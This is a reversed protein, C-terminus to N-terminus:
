NIIDREPPCRRAVLLQEFKNLPIPKSFLYGQTRYCGIDKLLQLQNYTEIGEAVVNIGLNNALQVIAKTIEISETSSDIDKVFSQDIKITDLKFRKLYFLSSYGTGFDDLAMSIGLKKLDEIMKISHIENDLFASETIEIEIWSPDVDFKELTEKVRQVLDAQLFEIASFNISVKILPIGLREWEKLQKCVSALVWEDITIILGSREALTIFEFPPVMGWEPHNWRILAEAGVIEYTNADIKPQYYLLLEEKLKAKKLDNQLSFAKYSGDYMTYHFVKYQNRGEEKARYMALEANQFIAKITEGGYPYLTIGLSVSIYLEHKQIVFPTIFISLLSEAEKELEKENTVTPLLLGFEDGGIRSVLGKDGIYDILRAAVLKILKDGQEYGLSDNVFKFNDLDLYIFAFQRANSQARKIESKLRIELQRRNSIGTLYDYDTLIKILEKSNKLEENRLLAEEEIEKKETIDTRLAVFQTVAGNEYLPVVTTQAWFFRGDKTKNKVEGEWVQGEKVTKWLEGFFTKSHYGSNILRHNRGILEDRSFRTIECFKDNVYTINGSIDAISIFAITDLALRVDSLNKLPDHFKREFNEKIFDGQRIQFKSFDVHCYTAGEEFRVHPKSNHRDEDDIMRDM